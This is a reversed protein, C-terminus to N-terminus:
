DFPPDWSDDEDGEDNGDECAPCRRPYGVGEGLLVGCGECLVGDLMLDVFDGM